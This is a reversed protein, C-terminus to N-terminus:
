RRKLVCRSLLGLMLDMGASREHAEDLIIVSIDRLLFDKKIM